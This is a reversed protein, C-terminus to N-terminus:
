TPNKLDFKIPIEVISRVPINGDKAPIFRTKQIAEIAANDLVTHGSTKKISITEPFGSPQVVVRIRVTGEWENKKAILPYVLPIAGGFKAKSKSFKTSNYPKALLINHNITNEDVKKPHLDTPHQIEMPISTLFMASTMTLSDSLIKDQVTSHQIAQRQAVKLYNRLNLRDTAHHDQLVQHQVPNVREQSKVPPTIQILTNRVVPTKLVQTTPIIKQPLATIPRRTNILPLPPTASNTPKSNTTQSKHVPSNAEVLTVQVVSNTHEIEDAFHISGSLTIIGVHILVSWAWFPLFPPVIHITRIDTTPLFTM